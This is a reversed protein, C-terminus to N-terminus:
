IEFLHKPADTLVEYGDEKVLIMDEIRVGGFGEIYLGPEITIVMGAELKMPQDNTIIPSEHLSLGIGHGLGHVNERYYGHYAFLDDVTKVIESCRIGPRIMKLAMQYAQYVIGYLNRQKETAHGIVLTRTMDSCYGNYLCGYDVTLFDGDNIIKDSPLGHPLATRGGSVLITSFSLKKAGKESLIAELCEGVEKESMGKQIEKLLLKYTESAIQAAKKVIEIETETKIMRLSEVFSTVRKINVVKCADIRRQRAQTLHKKEIGLTKLALQDIMKFLDDENNVTVLRVYEMMLESYRRDVFVIWEDKLLLMGRTLLPIGTLYEINQDDFILMGECAYQDLQQNIIAKSTM